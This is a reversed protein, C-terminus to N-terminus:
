FYLTSFVKGESVICSFVSNRSSEIDCCLISRGGDQTNIVDNDLPKRTELKRYGSQPLLTGQTGSVEPKQWIKVSLRRKPRVMLFTIPPRPTPSPSNELRLYKKENDFEKYLNIKPWLM